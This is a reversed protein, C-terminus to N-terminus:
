LFNYVVVLRVSIICLCYRRKYVQLFSISFSTRDFDILTSVLHINGLLSDELPISFIPREDINNIKSTSLRMIYRSRHSMAEYYSSKDEEKCISILGGADFFYFKWKIYCWFSIDRQHDAWSPPRPGASVCWHMEMLLLVPNYFLYARPLVRVSKNEYVYSRYHVHCRRRSVIKSRYCM